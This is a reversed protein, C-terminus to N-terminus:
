STIPGDTTLCANRIYRDSDLGSSYTHDRNVLDTDIYKGGGYKGGYSELM